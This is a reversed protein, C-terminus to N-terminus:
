LENEGLEKPASTETFGMAKLHKCPKRIGGRQYIWAPCSCRGNVVDVKYTKNPNSVSRIEIVDNGLTDAVVEIFLKKQSKSDLVEM